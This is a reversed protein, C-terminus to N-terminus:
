FLIGRLMSYETPGTWSRKVKVFDTREKRQLADKPVTLMFVGDIHRNVTQPLLRIGGSSSAGDKAGKQM